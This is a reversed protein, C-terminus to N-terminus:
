ACVMAALLTNWGLQRMEEESREYWPFEITMCRSGCREEAFGKLGQAPLKLLGYRLGKIWGRQRFTPDRMELNRIVKKMPWRRLYFIGDREKIMWNHWEIFLHPRIDEIATMLTKCLGYGAKIERSLDPAGRENLRCLGDAVGDPCIMPIIWLDVEGLEVPRKGKGYNEVIGEVCFSGATEYPHTRATVLVRRKGRRGARSRLLYIERGKPTSFLVEKEFLGPNVREKVFDLYEGYSYSPNLTLRTEGPPVKMMFITETGRQQAGFAEWGRKPFRCFIRDKLEIFRNDQWDIILKIAVEAMERNEVAIDLRFYYAAEGDEIEPMVRIENKGSQVIRGPHQPNGGDFNGYVRVM